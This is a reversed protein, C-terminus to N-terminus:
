NKSRKSRKSRKIKKSKRKKKLSKSSSLKKKSRRSRKSRKTRKSRKSRKSVGGELFRNPVKLGASKEEREKRRERMKELQERQASLLDPDDLQRSYSDSTVKEDEAPKYFPSKKTKLSSRSPTTPPTILTSSISDGFLESLRLQDNEQARRISPLAAALSEAFQQPSICGQCKYFGEEDINSCNDCQFKLSM